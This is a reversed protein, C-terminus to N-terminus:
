FLRLLIVGNVGAEIVLANFFGSNPPNKKHWNRVLKQLVDIVLL